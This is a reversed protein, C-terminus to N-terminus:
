SEHGRRDGGHTDAALTPEGPHDAAPRPRAALSLAAIAAFGILAMTPLTLFGLENVWLVACPAQPDCPGSLSPNREIAIHWVSIAAGVGTIPLVTLWAAADRRWTAVWLVVTLPYMAIRQFWCLECPIYGAVESMWLSGLTAVTAVTAAVPLAIEDRLWGPVRRRILLVVTAVAVGLAVLALLGALRDGFGIV